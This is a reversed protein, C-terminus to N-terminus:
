VIDGARRALELFHKFPHLVYAEDGHEQLVLIWPKKDVESQRKAQDIHDQRLSLKTMRKCEVSYPTGVCDSGPNPGNREGGLAQCTRREHNKANTRHRDAV